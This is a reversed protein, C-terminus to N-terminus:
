PCKSTWGGLRRELGPLRRRELRGHAVAPEVGSADGVVLALEVEQQLRRRQQRRLARQGHVDPEGAVALLLGSAVRDDVEQLRVLTPSVGAHDEVPVQELGANRHELDRRAADGVEVHPHSGALAIEVGADEAPRRQVRRVRQHLHEGGDQGAVSAQGLRESGADDPRAVLLDRAPALQVRARLDEGGLAGPRGVLARGLLEVQSGPDLGRDVHM